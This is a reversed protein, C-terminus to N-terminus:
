LYLGSDPASEAFPLELLGAIREAKRRVLDSEATVASPPTRTLERM